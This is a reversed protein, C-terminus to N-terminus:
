SINVKESYEDSLRQYDDRIIKQIEELFKKFDLQEEDIHMNIEYQIQSSESYYKKLKEKLYPEALFQYKLKINHMMDKTYTHMPNFHEKITTFKEIEAMAPSYLGELQEKLRLIRRQKKGEEMGTLVLIFTALALFVTAAGTLFEGLTMEFKTVRSFSVGILILILIVVIIRNNM